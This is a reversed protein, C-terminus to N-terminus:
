INDTVQFNKLNRLIRDWGWESIITPPLDHEPSFVAAQLCCRTKPAWGECGGFRILAQWFVQGFAEQVIISLWINAFIFREQANNRIQRNQYWM